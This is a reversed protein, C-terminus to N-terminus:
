PQIFVDSSTAVSLSGSSSPSNVVHGKDHFLQSPRFGDEPIETALAQELSAYLPAAAKPPPLSLIKEGSLGSRSYFKANVDNRTSLISGELSVGMFLGRSHAYSYAPHLTWGVHDPSTSIQSSRGVPGVAIGLETGLQVTGSVMTEVAEKTTLIVLYHTVDAGALAGWGMGITGLACPASWQQPEDLRSVLLGTGVRGSVVLGAKVVTLFILGKACHLLDLPISQDSEKFGTGGLITRPLCMEELIRCAQRISSGLTFSIPNIQRVTSENTAVNELDCPPRDSMTVFEYVLRALSHPLDGLNYRKLVSVLWVDLQVKRYQVLDDHQDPAWRLSPTWNGLRGAINKGPFAAELSICHNKFSDNLKSFESYRHELQLVQNNTLKVQLIYTVFKKGTIDRRTEASLLRATLTGPREEDRRRVEELAQTVGSGHQKWEKRASSALSEKSPFTSTAIPQPTVTGSSTTATFRTLPHPSSAVPSLGDSSDQVLSSGYQLTQRQFPDKQTRDLRQSHAAPTQIMAPSSESLSKSGPSAFPNDVM